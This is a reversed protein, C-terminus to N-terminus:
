WFFLIRISLNNFHKITCLLLHLLALLFVFLILTCKLYLLVFASYICLINNETGIYHYFHKKLDKQLPYIGWLLFPPFLYELCIVWFAITIDSLLTKLWFSILSISLSPCAYGDFSLNVWFNNCNLVNICWVCPCELM